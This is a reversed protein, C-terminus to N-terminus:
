LLMYLLARCPLLHPSCRPSSCAGAIVLAPRSFYHTLLSPDLHHESRNNFDPAYVISEGNPTTIQWVCGGVLHGAAFPMIEFGQARGALLVALQQESCCRSSRRAFAQVFITDRM